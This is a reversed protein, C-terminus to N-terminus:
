ILILPTNFKYFWGLSLVFIILESFVLYNCVWQSREEFDMLKTQLQLDNVTWICLHQKVREIQLYFLSFYNNKVILLRQDYFITANM